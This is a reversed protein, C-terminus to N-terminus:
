CVGAEEYDHSERFAYPDIAFVAEKFLYNCSKNFFLESVKLLIADKIVKPFRLYNYKSVGKNRRLCPVKVEKIVMGEFKALVPIFRHLDKGFRLNKYFSKSYARFSCSFDHVKLGFLRAGFFNAMLSPIRRFFLYPNDTQRWSCVVDAGQKLGELFRPIDAPDCQLDGDITVAFDGSAIDFGAALAASQGFNRTFRIVLMERDSLKLKKLLHRTGDMSGDDIFILEYLFSLSNLVNKLKHYLLVVNEEENFLPVIVSLKRKSENESICM